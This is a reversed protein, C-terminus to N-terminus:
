FRRQGLLPKIFRKMTKEEKQQLYCWCLFGYPTRRSRRKWGRSSEARTRPAPPAPHWGREGPVRLQPFAGPAGRAAETEPEAREGDACCRNEAAAARASGRARQGSRPARPPAVGAADAARGGASRPAGGAARGGRCAPEEARVSEDRSVPPSGPGDALEYGKGPCFVAMGASCGGRRSATAKCRVPSCPLLAAVVPGPGSAGSRLPAVAPSLRSPVPRSTVPRSPGRQRRRAALRRCPAGAGRPCPLTDTDTHM